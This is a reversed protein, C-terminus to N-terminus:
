LVSRVLASASPKVANGPAAAVADFKASNEVVVGLVTGIMLPRVGADPGAVPPVLTVIEPVPKAVPAVTVNSPMAAAFTFTSPLVVIM